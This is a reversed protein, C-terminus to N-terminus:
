GRMMTSLFDRRDLLGSEVEEEEVLPSLDLAAGM